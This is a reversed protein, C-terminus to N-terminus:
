KKKAPLYDAFSDEESLIPLSFLRIIATTVGCGPQRVAEIDVQRLGCSPSGEKFIILDPKVLRVIRLTEEGGRIFASTRDMGQRDIVQAAGNLVAKGGGGRFRCPARPIGLGGLIEPCVPIIVARTTLEGLFPHPSSVGNYRTRLGALCASMLIRPAM